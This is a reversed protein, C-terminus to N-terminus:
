RWRAVASQLSAVVGDIAAQVRDLDNECKLFWNRQDSTAQSWSPHLAENARDFMKMTANYAKLLDRTTFPEMNAKWGTWYQSSTADHATEFWHTLGSPLQIGYRCPPYASGAGPEFYVLASGSEDRLITQPKGPANM